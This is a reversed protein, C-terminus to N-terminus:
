FPEPLGDFARTFLAPMMQAREALCVAATERTMPDFHVVAFRQALRADGQATSQVHVRISYNGAHEVDLKTVSREGFVLGLQGAQPGTSDQVHDTLLLWPAEWHEITHIQRTSGSNRLAFEAGHVWRDFPAKFGYPYGMFTTTMRKVDHESVVSGYVAVFLERAEALVVTRLVIHGHEGEFHLDYGVREGSDALAELRGQITSMSCSVRGATLRAWVFGNAYWCTSPRLMGYGSSWDNLLKPNLAADAGVFSKYQLQYQQSPNGITLYLHEVARSDRTWTRTQWEFTAVPRNAAAKLREYEPDSTQAEVRHVVLAWTCVLLVVGTARRVHGAGASGTPHPSILTM